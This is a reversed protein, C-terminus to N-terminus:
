RGQVITGAFSQGAVMKELQDYQGIMLTFGKFALERGIRCAAPDLPYSGGAVWTEGVLEHMQSWSLQPLPEYSAIQEKDFETPRVNLVVPFNSIKVARDASFLKALAMMDLDTSHGPEVGTSLYIRYGPKPPHELDMVPKPCVEDGFVTVLKSMLYWTNIKTVAIGIEDSATAHLNAPLIPAFERMASEQVKRCVKGGGITLCFQERPHNRLLTILRQVAEQNYNGDPNLISGGYKIVMM